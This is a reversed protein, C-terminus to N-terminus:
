LKFFFDATLLWRNLTNVIFLCHWFTALYNWFWREMHCLILAMKCLSSAKDWWSSDGHLTRCKQCGKTCCVAKRQCLLMM